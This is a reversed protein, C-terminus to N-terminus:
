RNAPTSEMERSTDLHGRCFPISLISVWSVWQPGGNQMTKSSRRSVQPLVHVHWVCSVHSPSEFSANTSGRLPLSGYSIQFLRNKGRRLSDRRTRRDNGRELAAKPRNPAIPASVSRRWLRWLRLRLCRSTVSISLSAVHLGGQNTFAWWNTVGRGTSPPNEESLIGVHKTDDDSSTEPPRLTWHAGPRM